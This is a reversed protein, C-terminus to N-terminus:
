YTLFFANWDSDSQLSTRGYWELPRSVDRGGVFSNYLLQYLDGDDTYMRIGVTEDGNRGVVTDGVEQRHLSGDSLTYQTIRMVPGGMVTFLGRYGSDRYSIIWQFFNDGGMTGAHVISGDRYAFVDAQEMAYDSRIVLEPTGDGDMDHLAISELFFAM